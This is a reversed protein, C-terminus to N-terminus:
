SDQNEHPGARHEEPAEIRSVSYVPGVCQCWGRGRRQASLLNSVGSLGALGRVATATTTHFSRRNM